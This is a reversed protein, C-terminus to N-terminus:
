GGPFNGEDEDLVSDVFPPAIGGYCLAEEKRYMLDTTPFVFQPEQSAPPGTARPLTNILIQQCQAQDM